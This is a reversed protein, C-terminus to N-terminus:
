KDRHIQTLKPYSAYLRAELLTINGFIDNPTLSIARLSIGFEMSTKGDKRVLGGFDQNTTTGKRNGCLDNRFDLPSAPPSAGPFSNM